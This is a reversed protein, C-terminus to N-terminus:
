PIRGQRTTGCLGVLDLLRAAVEAWCTFKAMKAEGTPEARGIGLMTELELVRKLLADRERCVQDILDSGADYHATTVVGMRRM